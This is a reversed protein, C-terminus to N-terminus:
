FGQIAKRARERWTYNAADLRAQKGLAARRETDALLERLVATWTASDEPPAFVANSENLVEHLVPLDSSLIARGCALYDFMKMPSCIEASNGGSSGAIRREYPMLLVDGATQYLPLRTNEVFGTLTVNSIGNAALREQWAKVDESRGGIWLFNVEPLDHALQELLAMGRGAYFHGAYVLTTKAPLGLQRRAEVPDPLSEYQELETGNPAILIEQEPLQLGHENELKVRLAQTIVLLRKKGPLRVFLRVLWAGLRGTPRDHLELLAPMGLRLALDAAQPLWSYIMDAGWRRAQQVASWTFDYRKLAVRSRLWTLEFPTSLGYHPALVEWGTVTSGPIWLRVTQGEQALAHCTKMLQISNASTSPVQSSSICAIKM